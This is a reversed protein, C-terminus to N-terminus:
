KVNEEIHQWISYILTYANELDTKGTAESDGDVPLKDLQNRMLLLADFCQQKTM